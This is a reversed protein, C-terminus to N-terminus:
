QVKIAGSVGFKSNGDDSFRHKRGKTQEYAIIYRTGSDGEETGIFQPKGDICVYNFINVDGSQNITTKTINGHQYGYKYEGENSGFPNTNGTPNYVRYEDYGHGNPYDDRWEGKYLDYREATNRYWAGYGERLGDKMEGIYVYGKPYVGVYTDDDKKMIIPETLNETLTLFAESLLAEKGLEQDNADLLEVLKNFKESYVENIEQELKLRELEAAADGDPQVQIVKKLLKIAMDLEGNEQYLEALKLLYEIEDPKYLLLEEACLVADDYSGETILKEVIMHLYDSIKELILLEIAAIEETKEEILLNNIIEVAEQLTEKAGIYNDQGAYAKAKGEYAKVEKPDMTIVQEFTLIANEYDLELLYREGLGLQERIKDEESQCGSLTLVALLLLMMLKLGHKM